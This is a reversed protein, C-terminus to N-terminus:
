QKVQDIFKFMDELSTPERGNEAVFREREAKLIAKRRAKQEPTGIDLELSFPAPAPAAAEASRAELKKVETAIKKEILQPMEEDRLHRVKEQFKEQLANLDAKLAAVEADRGSPGEAKLLVQRAFMWVAIAGSVHGM